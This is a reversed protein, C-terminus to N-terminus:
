VYATRNARVEVQEKKGSATLQNLRRAAALATDLVRAEDLNDGGASHAPVGLADGISVRRETAVRRDKKERLRKSKRPM